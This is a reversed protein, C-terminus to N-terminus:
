KVEKIKELNNMSRKLENVNRIINHNNKFIYNFLWKKVYDYNLHDKEIFAIYEHKDNKADSIDKIYYFIGIDRIGNLLLKEFFPTLKKLDITALYQNNVVPTIFRIEINRTILYNNIELLGQILNENYKLTALGPYPAIDKIHKSHNESNISGDKHLFRKDQTYNKKLDLFIRKIGTFTLTPIDRKSYDILNEDVRIAGARLDILFIVKEINAIQKSNLQKLFNLIDGPEAYLNHFNLINKKAMESSIMHIQSSGFILISKQTKLMEFQKRSYEKTYFYKHKTISTSFIQEPNVIYYLLYTFISILISIWLFNIIFKKSNL